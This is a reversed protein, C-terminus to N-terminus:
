VYLAYDIFTEPKKGIMELTTRSNNFHKQEVIDFVANV